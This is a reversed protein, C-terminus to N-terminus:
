SLRSSRKEGGYDGGEVNPCDSRWSVISSTALVGKASSVM